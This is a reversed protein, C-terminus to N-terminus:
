FATGHLANTGSKTVGNVNIGGTRGYEASFSNSQVKFEQIAEVSPQFSIQTGDNLNIGDIM